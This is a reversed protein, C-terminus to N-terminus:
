VVLDKQRNCGTKFISIETHLNRFDPCASIYEKEM